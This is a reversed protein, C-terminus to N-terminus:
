EEIDGFLDYDFYQNIKVRVFEGANIKKSSKFFVKGDIDVSDAESRGYHQKTIDDYGETLVAIAKGIKRESLEDAVQSQALMLMEQRKRKVEDDIQGEMQAAPTQEEQSYAFVGLRDFKTNLVFDYLESFQEDTETPFGAILTTRITIEPMKVRLKEIVGIIGERSGKRGMKRLIDDNCHQIPIDIYKCIKENEAMIEILEDTIREPYCYHLRIWKIKDIKCLEKLLDALMVRGYLDVGYNTTDQAIIVLEQVGQNALNEAESVIDAIERSKYKGRISPIVCYTCQNDCGDSIKLFATYDPTTLVRDTSLFEYEKDCMVAGNEANIASIIDGIGGVGVVVDVEPLEKIIEDQYRQAMCGTVIIKSCSGDTKWQAVDLVADISEQKADNIFCCTNVIIVEAISEDEVIEMGNQKILSLMNEADVLNKSCGLSVM